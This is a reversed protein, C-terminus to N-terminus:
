SKAAIVQVVAGTGTHFKGEVVERILEKEHIFKLGSLEQKLGSLTMTMEEVPPGGTKYILQEPTYAELIMVGGPKLGDVVKQHLSKRVTPPLHCFISVIGDFSEKPITYETLDKCETTITVGRSSALKKAKTLGVSSSDVAVVDYGQEALFVSNRGEGEALCLVRGSPIKDVVSRLFDNPKTGYAYDDASYREDWM